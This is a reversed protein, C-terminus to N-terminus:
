ADEAEAFEESCEECFGDVLDEDSIWEDCGACKTADDTCGCGGESAHYRKGCDICTVWFADWDDPVNSV